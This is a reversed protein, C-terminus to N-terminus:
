KNEDKKTVGLDKLLKLFADRQEKQARVQAPFIRVLVYYIVWGLVALEGGRIIEPSMDPLLDTPNAAIIAAMAWIPGYALFRM